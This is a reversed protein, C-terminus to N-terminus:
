PPDFQKPKNEFSYVRSRSEERAEFAKMGAPAMQGCKTLDEVRDINVASWISRPKRPTFRITYSTDGLSRRVGDIWGYCLAQDRAQPYTVSPKGSDLKHFGVLLESANQHNKDLWKRFEAESRFYRPEM